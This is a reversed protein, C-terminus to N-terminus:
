TGPPRRLRQPHRALQYRREHTEVLLGMAALEALRRQALSRSIRMRCALQTHGMVRDPTFQALIKVIGILTVNQPGRSHPLRTSRRAQRRTPRRTSSVPAVKVPHPEPPSNFEGELWEYVLDKYDGRVDYFKPHEEPRSDKDAGPWWLRAAGRRVALCRPLFCSLHLALDYSPIFYIPTHAGVIERIRRTSLAPEMEGPSATLAIVPYTRECSLIESALARVQRPSSVRTFHEHAGVGSMALMAPRYFEVARVYVPAAYTASNVHRFTESRLPHPSTAPKRGALVTRM